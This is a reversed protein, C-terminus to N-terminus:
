GRTIKFRRSLHDNPLLTRQRRPNVTARKCLAGVPSKGYARNSVAGVSQYNGYPSPRDRAM